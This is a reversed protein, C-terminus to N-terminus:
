QELMWLLILSGDIGKMKHAITTFRKHQLPFQSRCIHDSTDCREFIFENGNLYLGVVFHVIHEGKSQGTEFDFFIMKYNLKKAFEKQLFRLLNEMFIM